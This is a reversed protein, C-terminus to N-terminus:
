LRTRVLGSGSAISTWMYGWVWARPVFSTWMSSVLAIM